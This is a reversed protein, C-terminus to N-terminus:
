FWYPHQNRWVDIRDFCCCCCCCRRCCFSCHIFFRKRWDSKITTTSCLFLSIMWKDIM